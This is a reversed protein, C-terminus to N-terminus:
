RPPIRTLEIQTMGSSFRRESREGNFEFNSRRKKRAQRKEWEENEEITYEWNKKRDVDEGKEESDIRDRLTEALKRQKEQRALDRATM